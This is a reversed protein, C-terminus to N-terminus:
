VSKEKEFLSIQPVGMQVSRKYNGAVSNSSKNMSELKDLIDSREGELRTRLDVELNNIRNIVAKVRMSAEYLRAMNESLNSMDCSNNLIDKVSKDISVEKNIEDQVKVAQQLLQGRDAQIDLIEEIPSTLMMNSLEEVKLFIDRKEVLLTVLKEINEM